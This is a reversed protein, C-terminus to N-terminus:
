NAPAVSRRRPRQLPRGLIKEVARADRDEETESTDPPGLERQSLEEVVALVRLLGLREGRIHQTKEYPSAPDALQRDLLALYKILPSDEGSFLWSFEDSNLLSTWSM